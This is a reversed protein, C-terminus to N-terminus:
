LFMDQGASVMSLVHITNTHILFIWFLDLHFFSSFVLYILIVILSAKEVDSSCVVLGARNEEM